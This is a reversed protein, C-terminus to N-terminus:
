RGLNNDIIFQDRLQRYIDVDPSLRMAREYQSLADLYLGREAYFIALMLAHTSNEESYENLADTVETIEDQDTIRQIQYVESSMEPGTSEVRVVFFSENDLPPASFDIEVFSEQTEITALNDGFSSLVTVNYNSANETSFWRVIAKNGYIINVKNQEKVLLTIFNDAARSVGAITKLNEKYDAKLDPEVNNIVELVYGMIRINIGSVKPPVRKELVAVEHIGPTNVEITKGTRHLLGLYTEETAIIQDGTFLEAGIKAQEPTSSGTKKIDTQGKSALVKFVFDQGLSIQSLCLFVIAALAIRM